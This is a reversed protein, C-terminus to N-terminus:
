ERNSVTVMEASRLLKSSITLRATKAADLNIRLRVRNREMVFWVIAGKRAYEEWDCVTLVSESRLREALREIQRGESGSVFLVHCKGLDEMTPFRQVVLPRGNAREGRVLDDLFPGFPDLGLVAIILPSEASEFSEEPWEVFQAFNYLFAAKIRFERSPTPEGAAAGSYGFLLLLLLAAGFLPPWTRLPFIWRCRSMIGLRAM